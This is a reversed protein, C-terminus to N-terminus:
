SPRDQSTTLASAGSTTTQLPETDTAFVGKLETKLIKGAANRPLMEPWFVIRVPMKYGALRSRVFAQLETESVGAGSRIHVVAGPEEGLTRHAIGIVAADLVDPHSHLVNEVEVCYINEGGRILMDKVRDVLYLFGDQDIRALDGTRLWGDVFAAATTVPDHWYGKVVQPGTVWLEGIEGCALETQGDLSVIRMDGVPTAPGASTPRRVYETGLNGTFSGTTETMGWGNGPQVGPFAEAIRSLLEPASAAGGYNLAQLSSLDYQDRAPHAILQAAITPVGGTVTVREREILQMAQEADWRRMLVLKGGANVTTGLTASLGSVHFLPVALLAIRQPLKHPDGEPVPEGARLFNRAVNFASTQVHTSMNRHSGLAGKPQGTTGSTYLITADEDPQLDVAPPQLVPLSAWTDPVGIVSQLDAVTPGTLPGSARAVYLRDLAPLATLHDSLRELREHDVIALKAGSDALAYELEAGTWWANLPTVIAGALIGAYFAVPWEPLNRMVLAVRDGKGVGDRRLQAALQLTARAFADYTVREDEYVIFEREAFRWGNLFVDRLTAPADKWVRMPVGNIVADEIEFRTGPATLRADAEAISLAPWREAM